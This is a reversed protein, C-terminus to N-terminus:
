SENVKVNFSPRLNESDIGYSCISVMAVSYSSWAITSPGLNGAGVEM